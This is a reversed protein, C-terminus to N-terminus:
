SANHASCRAGFTLFLFLLRKLHVLDSIGASCKDDDNKRKGFTVRNESRRARAMPKILICLSSLYYFLVAMFSVSMSNASLSSNQFYLLLQFHAMGAIDGHWQFTCCHFTESIRITYTCPCLIATEKPRYLHGLNWSKFALTSSEIFTSTPPQLSCTQLWKNVFMLLEYSEEGLLNTSTWPFCTQPQCVASRTQGHSILANM